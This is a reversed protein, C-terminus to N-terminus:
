SGNSGVLRDYLTTTRDRVRAMPIGAREALHLAGGMGVGEKAEGARYRQLAPHDAQPFGPDTIALDVELAATAAEIDITPDAAVFPTTALTLRSSRGAHRVLAAVALMQTGGALTVAAGSDIAGVTCGAIAALVPDGMLRAARIPDGAADGPDLGSADLGTAVIDRKRDIPNEPLSSSVEFPEGLATLVGLATTTGGPISEGIYVEADPLEGALDRAAGFAAPAAPVPEPERIDRGPTGAVTVTPAATPSELGADMTLLDFATCDRVARTVIAPTPCGTPSVPVTPAHILRGYATIEADAAPTHAVADPSAGAASIGDISATETTGIALVFRM